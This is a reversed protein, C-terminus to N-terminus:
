RRTPTVPVAGRPPLAFCLLLTRQLAHFNDDSVLYIRTEGGPGSVADIGEFNERVLTGELRALEEGELVAGAVIGAAPVLVIRSALGGIWTFRRELVVVDGDPLTAAGTPVFLGGLKWSVPSWDHRPPGTSVWGAGLGPGAPLEEALAFLRGDALATLAELGRNSTARRLAPPAAIATPPRSFPPTSARYRWIRPLGEFGVAVGDALRAMTEADGHRSGGVPAGRPDVLPGIEGDAIGELHGDSGYVLRATLWRGADSVAVIRRGSDTVLLGSLGGFRKDNSSVAIGGRYALRGVSATEPFESDLAIRKSDLAIPEAGAGGALVAALAVVCRASEARLPM